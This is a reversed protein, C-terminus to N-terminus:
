LLSILDSQIKILNIGVINKVGTKVLDETKAKKKVTKLNEDVLQISQITPILNAIDKVSM